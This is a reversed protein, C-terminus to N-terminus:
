LFDFPSTYMVTLVFQGSFTETRAVIRSTPKTPMPCCHIANTKNIPTNPKIMTSTMWRVNTAKRPAAATKYTKANSCRNGDTAFIIWHISWSVNANSQPIITITANSARDPTNSNRETRKISNDLHSMHRKVHISMSKSQMKDANKSLTVVISKNAGTIIEKHLANFISGLGKNSGNAKNPLMPPAAVIIPSGGFMMTPFAKFSYM